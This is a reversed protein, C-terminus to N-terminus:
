PVYFNWEDVRLYSHFRSLILFEEWLVQGTPRTSQFSNSLPTM